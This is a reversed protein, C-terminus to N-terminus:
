WSCVPISVGVPWAVGYRWVRHAETPWNPPTVDVLQGEPRFPLVSGAALLTCAKRRFPQRVEPSSVWGPRTVLRYAATDFSYNLEKPTPAYLSLTCFATAEPGVDPFDPVAEFTPTFSGYSASREGGLGRDGLRRFAAQLLPWFNPEAVRVLCHLGSGETFHVVGCHYLNATQSARDLAARPTLTVRVARRLRSQAESVEAAFTPGDSV